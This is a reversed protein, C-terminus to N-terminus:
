SDDDPEGITLLRTAEFGAGFLDAVVELMQRSSLKAAVGAELRQALDEPPALVAALADGLPGGPGGVGPGVFDAPGGPGPGDPGGPTAPTATLTPEMQELAAACRECTGVHRDVQPEEAGALWDQLAARSPHRVMM